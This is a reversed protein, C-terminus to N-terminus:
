RRLLKWIKELLNKLIIRTWKSSGQGCGESLKTTSLYDLIESYNTPPTALYFLRTICAGLKDDIDKLRSILENYGRKDEFMGQQYSLHKTFTKWKEDQTLNTFSSTFQEITMERRAFGIIFFDEPLLKQKFLSFLAPILNTKTLDGTAGFIIMVFPTM